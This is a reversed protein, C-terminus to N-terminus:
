RFDTRRRTSTWDEDRALHMPGRGHGLGPASQLSEEVYSKALSAASRFGEGLVFNSLLASSFACGTGHTSTTEVRTGKLWAPPADTSVLLDDCAATGCDGGTVVMRKLGSKHLFEMAEDILADPSMSTERSLFAFEERNPTLCSIWPFLDARLSGLASAELLVRGSSSSLVPDLVVPIDNELTSLFQAVVDIVAGNALMGIKVGDPTLDEALYALMEALLDPDTAQVRSVGLTSQVTLATPCSIGFLGHATFVQLDATVGAGSSPDHGAITLAVEPKRRPSENQM